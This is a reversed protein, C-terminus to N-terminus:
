HHEITLTVSKVASGKGSGKMNDVEGDNGETAVNDLMNSATGPPKDAQLAMLRKKNRSSILRKTTAKEEVTMEMWNPIRGLTGDTNVIIPGLDELKISFDSASASSVEPLEGSM